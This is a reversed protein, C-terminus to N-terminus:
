KSTGQAGFHHRKKLASVFKENEDAEDEEEEAEEVRGGFAYGCKPCSTKVMGGHAARVPLASFGGKQKKTEEDWKEVTDKPIEGRSALVHMYAAQKRSKFPM